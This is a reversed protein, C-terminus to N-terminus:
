GQEISFVQCRLLKEAQRVYPGSTIVRERKSNERPLPRCAALHPLPSYSGRPSARRTRNWPRGGIEKKGVNATSKLHLSNFYLPSIDLNHRVEVMEDIKKSSLTKFRNPGDVVKTFM